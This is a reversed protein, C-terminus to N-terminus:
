ASDTPNNHQEERWRTKHHNTSPSSSSSPPNERKNKPWNKARCSSTYSAQILASHGKSPPSCYWTLENTGAKAGCKKWIIYLSMYWGKKEPAKRIQLFCTGGRKRLHRGPWWAASKITCTKITKMVYSMHFVILLVNAYLYNDKLNKTKNAHSREFM